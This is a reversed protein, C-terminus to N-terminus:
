SIDMRTCPSGVCVSLPCIGPVPALAASHNPLVATSLRSDTHEAYAENMACGKEAFPPVEDGCKQLSRHWATRRGQDRHQMNPKTPEFIRRQWKAMLHQKSYAPNFPNRYGYSADFRHLELLYCLSNSRSSQSIRASESKRGEVLPNSRSGDDV